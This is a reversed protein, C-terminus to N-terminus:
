EKFLMVAATAEAATEVQYGAESLLTKYFELTAPDDDAALIKVPRM